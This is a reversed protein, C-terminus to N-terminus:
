ALNGIKVRLTSGEFVKITSNTMELRSTSSSSSSAINISGRFTATNLEIEGGKNIKWGQSGATYTTSQIVNGIKANDIAANGIQANQIAGNAIYTSVNSTSIQGLTAFAGQNAINAATNSATNDANTPPKTGTTDSYAVSNATALSGQNAINAATNSSTQDANSPPGGSVNSYGLANGAGFLINGSGDKITLNNTNIKDAVISNSGIRDASLTGATIKAADLNAIKANDIAADQIKARNITADAIFAAKIYTGAPISVGNITTTTDIQFFPAESSGGLAESLVDMLYDPDDGTTASVGNTANYASAVGNVNVNRAWYWRTAATGLQHAFVNGANMGVLEAQGLTPNESAAVQANTQAAAWIETYAHGSYTEANWTVIINALAGSAALGTPPRPTEVVAGTPNTVVGTGFGAIGAAVLQRATVAGDLGGSDLAERVRQIFQQLDRPLPSSVTPLNAM